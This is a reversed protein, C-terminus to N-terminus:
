LGVSIKALWSQQSSVIRREASVIVLQPVLQAQLGIAHSSDNWSRALTEGPQTTLALSTGTEGSTRISANHSNVGYNAYANLIRLFGYSAVVEGTLTSFETSPLGMIRSYKGRIALAPLAFKEFMTWQAYGGATTAETDPIKGISLGFDLPIPLGKHFYARPIMVTPPTSTETNSRFDNSSRLQDNLLVSNEPSKHESIGIGLGVGISGHSGAGEIPSYANASALFSLYDDVHPTLDEVSPQSRAFSPATLWIFFAVSYLKLKTLSLHNLYNM